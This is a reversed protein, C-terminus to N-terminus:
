GASSFGGPRHAPKRLYWSSPGTELWAYLADFVRDDKGVKFGDKAIVGKPDCIALPTGAASEDRISSMANVDATQRIKGAYFVASPNSDQRAIRKWATPQLGVILWASVAAAVLM